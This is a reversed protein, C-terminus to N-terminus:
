FRQEGMAEVEVPSTATGTNPASFLAGVNMRLRQFADSLSARSRHMRHTLTATTPRSPAPTSAAATIGSDSSSNRQEQSLMTLERIAEEMTQARAAPNTPDSVRSEGEPGPYLTYIFIDTTSLTSLLPHDSFHM